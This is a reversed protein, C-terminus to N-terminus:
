PIPVWMTLRTGRGPTSSLSLGGGVAELRDVLGALGGGATIDAGGMGDDDVEATLDGGVRERVSVVIRRAGSHKVANTIAEACAYWIAAEAQAAFRRGTVDLQIPLPCSDALEALAAELGRETLLRPHLGRALQHLDERTKQVEALCGPVSAAVGPDHVRDLDVLAQELEDLGVMAGNALLGELRRREAIGAQVLEARSTRVAAAQEALQAQLAANSELLAVASLLSRRAEPDDEGAGATRLSTMTLEPTEDSLDIVADTEWSRSRRLLGVVIILGSLTLPVCYILFASRGAPSEPWLWRPLAPLALSLALATAARATVMAASTHGRARTSWLRVSELILLLALGVMGLVSRGLPVFVAGALAVIVVLWAFRGRLRGVPYALVVYIMLPRHVLLLPDWVDGAFWSLGAVGLLAAYRRSSRWAIVAALLFVVGPLLAIGTAV